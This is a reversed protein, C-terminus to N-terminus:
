TLSAKAGIGEEMTDRCDLASVIFANLPVGVRRVTLVLGSQRVDGNPGMM